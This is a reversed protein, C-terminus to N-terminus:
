PHLDHICDIGLGQEAQRHQARQDAALAQLAALELADHGLQGLAVVGNGVGLAVAQAGLGDLSPVVGPAVMAELAQHGLRAHIPAARADLRRQLLRDQRGLAVVRAATM